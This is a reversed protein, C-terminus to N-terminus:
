NPRDAHSGFCSGIRKERLKALLAELFNMQEAGAARQTSDAGAVPFRFFEATVAEQSHDSGPVSLLRCADYDVHPRGYGNVRQIGAAKM